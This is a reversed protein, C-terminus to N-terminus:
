SENLAKVDVPTVQEAWQKASVVPQPMAVVFTQQIKLNEARAGYGMAKTSMRAAELSFEPDVTPAHLRDLVNELSKTAVARLREDISAVLSPDILDSKRQAMRELFADSNTVQSLWAGTYGFHKAIVGKGVGPNALMFDLIGDHTYSVRAISDAAAETGELRDSRAFDFNM